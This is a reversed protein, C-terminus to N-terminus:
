ARAPIAAARAAGPREGVVREAALGFGLGLGTWLVAQMGLWAVRFNWLVDASFGEPVENVAPLAAQAAAIVVIFALGAVVAANWGGLRAWLARALMGAGVAVVLSLVLMGFYLATRAGITEASGVAPPNAPYKLGPVVVLAVFGGLALLLATPRAGLPGLRGYVFAFALAFLGGLAAGYVLVGTALGIGAQTPRSVLAEAEDHGQASAQAEGGHGHPPAAQEHQEEFAIARDVAPEGFVRAVGFAFLGALLGVLMGRLLLSGVM